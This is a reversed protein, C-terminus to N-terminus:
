TFINWARAVYRNWPWAPNMGQAPDFLQGKHLLVAHGFQPDLCDAVSLWLTENCKMLAGLCDKGMPQVLIGSDHRGARYKERCREHEAMGMRGPGVLSIVDELTVGALMAVCSQQCAEGYSGQLVLEM